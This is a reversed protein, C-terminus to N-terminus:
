QTFKSCKFTNFNRKRQLVKEDAVVYNNVNYVLTFISNSNRM